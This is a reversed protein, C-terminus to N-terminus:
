SHRLPFDEDSEYSKVQVQVDEGPRNPACMMIGVSGDGFLRLGFGNGSDSSDRLEDIARLSSRGRSHTWETRDFRVNRAVIDDGRDGSYVPEVFLVARAIRTVQIQIYSNATRQASSRTL